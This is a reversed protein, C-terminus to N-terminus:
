CVWATLENLNFSCAKVRVRRIQAPALLIQEPRVPAVEKTGEIINLASKWGGERVLIEKPENALRGDCAGVSNGKRVSKFWRQQTGISPLEAEIGADISWCGVSVGDVREAAQQMM